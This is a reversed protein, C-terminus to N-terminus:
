LLGEKELYSQADLAAMCGSGASVVAQRYRYDAVDGAVFVGPISTYTGKTLVIYGYKDLELQGHFPATNPKQGIALFVVDTPLETVQNTEQNTIIVRKVATGDGEIASVTSSYMVKIFPKELVRMQMVPSATFKSLIHVITIKQTYKSMFLAQEMATDGGGVIIVEKDPYFAGDCVACTSLGKGWYDKEGKCHLTNPSAGTAIIVSNTLFQLNKNTTIKFPRQSFDVSSVSGPVFSTGFHEAHERKLMMLEPGLISKHGPWNEILTTSMLQGGPKDGEIVIPKIFARSAYVAATLGAPGSGIIILNHITSTDPKM